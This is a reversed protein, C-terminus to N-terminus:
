SKPHADKIAKIATYFAGTKDLKGEDIDHWLADLEDGLTYQTFEFQRELQYYKLDYAAVLEKWKTYVDENSPPTYPIIEPPQQDDWGPNYTFDGPQAYRLEGKVQDKQVNDRYGGVFDADIEAAAEALSPPMYAVKCHAAMIEAKTKKNAM